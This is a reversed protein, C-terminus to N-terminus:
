LFLKFFFYNTFVHFFFLLYFFIGINYNLQFLLMNFQIYITYYKYAYMYYNKVLIYIFTYINNGNLKYLLYICLQTTYVNIYRDM